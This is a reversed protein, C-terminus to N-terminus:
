EPIGSLLFEGDAVVTDGPNESGQVARADYGVVDSHGLAIWSAHSMRDPCGGHRDMCEIVVGTKKM